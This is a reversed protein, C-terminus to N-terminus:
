IRERTESDATMYHEYDHILYYKIGKEPGYSHVWEATQWATAIVADADPIFKEDLTPVWLMRVRPDIVFWKHPLYSKDITRQVYRALKKSKVLWQSNHDLMAPHIISVYHGRACLHNAYEYVVKFGGVPTCGPGPLVLTIIM